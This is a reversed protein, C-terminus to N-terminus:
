NATMLRRFSTKTATKGDPDSVIPNLNNALSPYKDQLGPFDTWVITIKVPHDNKAVDSSIQWSRGTELGVPVDDFKICWDPIISISPKHNAHGLRIFGHTLHSQASEWGFTANTRCSLGPWGLRRM